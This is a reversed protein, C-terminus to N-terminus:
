AKSQVILKIKSSSKHIIVQIDHNLNEKEFVWKELTMNPVKESIKFCGQNKVKGRFNQSL